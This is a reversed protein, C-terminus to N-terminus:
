GANGVSHREPEVPQTLVSKAAGHPFSQNPIVGGRQGGFTGLAFAGARSRRPNDARGAFRALYGDRNEGSEGGGARASPKAEPRSGWHDVHDVDYECIVSQLSLALM